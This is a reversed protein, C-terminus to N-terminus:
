RLTDYRGAGDWGMQGGVKDYPAVVLRGRVLGGEFLFFGEEM